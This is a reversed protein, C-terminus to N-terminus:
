HSTRTRIRIWVLIERIGLVPIAVNQIVMAQQIKTLQNKKTNGPLEEWSLIHLRLRSVKFDFENSNDDTLSKAITTQQFWKSNDITFSTQQQWRNFENSNDHIWSMAITTQLARKSNDKLSMATTTQQVWQQQRRNFENSNDDTLSM